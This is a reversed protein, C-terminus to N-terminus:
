KSDYIEALLFQVFSHNREEQALLPLFVLIQNVDDGGLSISSGFIYM